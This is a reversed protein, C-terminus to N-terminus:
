QFPVMGRASLAHAQAANLILRDDLLTRVNNVAKRCSHHLPICSVYPVVLNGCQQVAYLMDHYPKGLLLASIYNHHSPPM